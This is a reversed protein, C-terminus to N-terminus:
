SSSSASVLVWLRPMCTILWVPSHVDLQSMGLTGAAAIIPGIILYIKYHGTRSMAIGSFVGTALLGLTMPVLLLGSVTASYGYGMQLYTPLYLTAGFMAGMYLMSMLTALVFTRNTM